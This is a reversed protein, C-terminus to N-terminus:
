KKRDIQSERDRYFAPFPFANLYANLIRARQREILTQRDAQRDRDTETQRERETNRQREIL